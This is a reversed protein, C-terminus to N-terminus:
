GRPGLLMARVDGGCRLSLVLLYISLFLSGGFLALLGLGLGAASFQHRWSVWLGSLSLMFLFDLNFQGPWTMTAMDGFFIPLLGLGHHSAVIATYVLLVVGTLILFFRFLLM